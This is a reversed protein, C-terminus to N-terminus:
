KKYIKEWYDITAKLGEELNYKPEWNLLDKAKTNDGILVKADLPRPPTARWVIEGKFGTLKAILEATEKTTYGKGTCLQIEQGIAKKNGLAKLYGQVHDDVYVWDRVTDPDGLYVKDQKLMQTITREIFFHSNDVRGYTNFPRLTTYPFGYAMHMYRLYLDGAVKAVAYPSNPKLEYDEVIKKDTTLLSMGYEESTGAMLFQKFHPVDRYCAEALNVTGLYNAESVEIYHDYSFSVASVAATHICYEPQVEKVVHRVAPYDTLNAYHRVVSQPADLSYRGTVYRELTHVEYGKEVLKKVLIKGVFGTAGTLLVKEM